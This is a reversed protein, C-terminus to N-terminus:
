SGTNELFGVVQLWSPEPLPNRALRMGIKRMVSQSAVNTYETSAIVRKVQLQKFAYEVMRQAAETAYGQRQYKPDIAWFLAFETVYHPSAQLMPRLEPIQESPLLLPVYGISGIVQNSTKLSIARDGYPPQRLKVFWEQNLISWELWSRREELATEDDVKTGDGLTQDLIRHIILLDDRLFPRIILRPTELIM